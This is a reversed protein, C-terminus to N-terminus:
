FDRGIPTLSRRAGTYCSWATAPMRGNGVREFRIDEVDAVIVVVPSDKAICEEM